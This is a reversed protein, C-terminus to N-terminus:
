TKEKKKRMLDQLVSSDSEEFNLYKKVVKEYRVKNMEVVWKSSKRSPRTMRMKDLPIRVDFSNNGYRRTEIMLKDFQM